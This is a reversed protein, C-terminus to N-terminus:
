ERVVKEIWSREGNAIRIFYIGGAFGSLDVQAPLEITTDKIKLGTANFVQLNFTGSLGGITFLGKTPNPHKIKRLGPKLLKDTSDSSFL